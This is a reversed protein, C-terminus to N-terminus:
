TERFYLAYGPELCSLAKAHNRVRTLEPTRLGDYHLWESSWRIFATFHKSSSDHMTVGGLRFRFFIFYM